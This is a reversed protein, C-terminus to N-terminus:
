KGFQSLGDNYIELLENIGKAEMDAVYADWDTDLSKTGTIFAVTSITFEDSLNAILLSVDEQTLDDFKPILPLGILADMEDVKNNIAAFEPVYKTLQVAKEWKMLTAWAGCGYKIQLGKMIGNPDNLVEDTYVIQGDVINYTEGEIGIAFAMAAEDSFFMKDVATLVEHFDARNALSASFALGMRSRSNPQWYAGAPGELPPLMTFRVGEEVANLEIGGIQDFWGYSAIASGTALKTTWTDAATKEFEPDLLGESYLKHFFALYEKYMESTAGAFYVENDYDWSLVYSGSSSTAGLSLGFSPLSYNFLHQLEQYVTMPYSDPHDAKYLKLFQYLDDFTKIEEVGYYEMLDARILLGANVILSDYAIPLHYYKGDPQVYLDNIEQQIDYEEVFQRYNPMYDLYDSIPLLAGSSAFQNFPNTATNVYTMVDAEAHASLSTILKTNYDTNPYVEWTVDANALDAAYQYPTWSDSFPYTPNDPYSVSFKVKGEEALAGGLMGCLLMTVVIWTLVKKM